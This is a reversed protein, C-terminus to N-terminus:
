RATGSLHEASHGVWSPMPVRTFYQISMLLLRLEHILRPPRASHAEIYEQLAESLQESRRTM